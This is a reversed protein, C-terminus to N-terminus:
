SMYIIVNNTLLEFKKCEVSRTFFPATDIIERVALPPLELQVKGNTM